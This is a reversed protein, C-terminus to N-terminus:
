SADGPPPPHYRKEVAMEKKQRAETLCNYRVHVPLHPNWFRLLLVVREENTDNRVEHEFSDDFLLIKGPEWNHWEVGVRIQCHSDPRTSPQPVVLGLHATWRLNTSGCHSQIHTHPALRSFIVEGGGQQALSVADPVLQQILSRTAKATANDSSEGTGFLVFESWDQGAVVRHDDHGSGRDGSGVKTWGRTQKRLQQYEQLIEPFYQELEHCWAPHEEGPIFSPSKHKWLGDPAMYGPRQWADTWGCPGVLSVATKYKATSDNHNLPDIVTSIAFAAVCKAFPRQDDLEEMSLMLEMWADDWTTRHVNYWASRTSLLISLCQALRQRGSDISQGDIECYACFLLRKAANLAFNKGQGTDQLQAPASAPQQKAVKGSQVFRNWAKQIPELSLQFQEVGKLYDQQEWLRYGTKWGSNHTAREKDSVTTWWPDCVGGDMIQRQLPVFVAGLKSCVQKHRKWDKRQCTADHYAACQCNRCKRLKDNGVPPEGCENCIM